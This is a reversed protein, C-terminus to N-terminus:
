LGSEQIASMVFMKQIAQTAAINLQDCHTSIQNTVLFNDLQSPELIPKFM